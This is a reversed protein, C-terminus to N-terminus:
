PLFVEPDLPPSFVTQWRRLFHEASRRESPERGFALTGGYRFTVDPRYLVALGKLRARLTWDLDFLSEPFDADYGGVVELHARRLTSACLPALDLLAPRLVNIADATSGAHLLRFSGDTVGAGCARITDGDADLVRGMVCAVEPREFAAAVGVHWYSRPRAGAPVFAVFEGHAHEFMSNLVAGPPVATTCSLLTTQFGLSSLRRADIAVGNAVVISEVPRDGFTARTANLTEILDDDSGSALVVVSFRPGGDV